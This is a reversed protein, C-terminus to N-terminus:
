PAEAAVRTGTFPATQPATIVEGNPGAATQSATGTLTNGKFTGKAKVTTVSTLKGDPGFHFNKYSFVFGDSGQAVWQGIGTGAQDSGTTIFIGGTGFAALAQFPPGPTQPSILWSGRVSPAESSSSSSGGSCGAVLLGVLGFTLALLPLPNRM